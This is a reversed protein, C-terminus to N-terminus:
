FFDVKRLKGFVRRNIRRMLIPAVFLEFSSAQLKYEEQELPGRKQSAERM